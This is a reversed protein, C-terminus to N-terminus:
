SILAQVEVGGCSVLMGGFNFSLYFVYPLLDATCPVRERVLFKRVSHDGAHHLVGMNQSLASGTLVPIDHLIEGSVSM